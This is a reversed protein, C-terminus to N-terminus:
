DKKKMKMALARLSNLFEPPRAMEFITEQDSGIRKKAIEFYEEEREIGIFDFLCNRAALGTTGSGMFPDLVIGNPPIVLKCLYEMLKLPKQTPHSSGERESTSAKACYFFRAAGGKENAYFNNRDAITNNMWNISKTMVLPKEVSKTYEGRSPCDGSQEDLVKSSEEDFIVNAPWRGKSMSAETAEDFRGGRNVHDWGNNGQQETSKYRNISPNDEGDKLSIRTADINLAGTGHKLVNQAITKEEIPKRCLTWLEMAPKLATAWGELFIPRECRSCRPFPSGDLTRQSGQINESERTSQRRSRSESPSCSGNGDIGQGIDERSGFHTGTCLRETQRTSSEPMSDNCVGERTGCISRGELSSKEGDCNQSEAGASGFESSEQEPLISQLIEGSKNGLYLTSSLNKGSLSRMDHETQPKCGCAIGEKIAQKVCDVAKPFGQGYIWAVVDRVEFGADELGVVMRHQTRTGCAVLAHGGPKLVRVVEKWLAVSPVDYDWKKGMFSIGYPPDTIVADVSNDSLQKLAVLSDGHILRM